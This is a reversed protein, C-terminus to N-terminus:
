REMEMGKMIRTRTGSTEVTIHSKQVDVVTGGKNGLRDGIEVEAHTSDKSIILAKGDATEVFRINKIDKDPFVDKAYVITAISLTLMATIFATKM